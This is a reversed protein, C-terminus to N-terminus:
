INLHSVPLHALCAVGQKHCLFALPHIAVLHPIQHFFIQRFAARQLLPRRMHKAMRKGCGHQVVLCSQFTHLLQEPMLAQRRCLNICMCGKLLKLTFVLIGM